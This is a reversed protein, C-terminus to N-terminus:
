DVYAKSKLREYLIRVGLNRKTLMEPGVIPNTRSLFYLIQTQVDKDPKRCLCQNLSASAEVTWRRAELLYTISSMSAPLAVLGSKLNALEQASRPRGKQCGARVIRTTPRTPLTLVFKVPARTRIKLVDM